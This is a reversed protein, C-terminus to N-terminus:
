SPNAKRLLDTLTCATVIKEADMRDIPQLGYRVVHDLCAWIQNLIDRSDVPQLKEM